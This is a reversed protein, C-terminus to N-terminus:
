FVAKLIIIIVYCIDDIKNKDYNFELKVYYQNNNEVILLITINKFLYSYIKQQVINHYKDIIPFQNIDFLEESTIEIIIYKEIQCFLSQCHKVKKKHNVILSMNNYTYIKKTTKKNFTAFQEIKDKLKFFINKDILYSGGFSNFQGFYINILQNKKILPLNELISKIKDKNIFDM